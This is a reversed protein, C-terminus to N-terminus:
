ESVKLEKKLIFNCVKHEQSEDNYNKRPLYIYGMFFKTFSIFLKTIYM